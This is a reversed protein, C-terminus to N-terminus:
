SSAPVEEIAGAPRASLAFLSASALLSLGASLAVAYMGFRDLMLGFLFPSASQLVRAPASLVGSRRGYGGPGFLALPLTGKAITIMGNGAGHLVSFVVIGPAGLLILFAAGIPHLAAAVRASILPHLSRLMGFEVLRAGVQAPGVLAAATIAATESVGTAELLRPLQAAMAGTVFWTASFFFALVLMAGRPAPAVEPEPTRGAATEVAIRHPRSSPILFWNLPAALALNIAAWFLCAERWGAVHALWATAPWGITSAFGAILTIGTIPARAARGYLSALAAFAPDYLGMGMGAGLIAWAVVLGALGHAIALAVLGAAIVANAGALMGRGGHRDILKGVAPGIFASLLLAGSFVGFFVSTPLDLAAAIPTGLIAPLYYSSAWAIMQTTGITAVVGVRSRM